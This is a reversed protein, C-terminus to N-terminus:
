INLANANIETCIKRALDIERLSNPSIEKHKANNFITSDIKTALDVSTVRFKTPLDQFTFKESAFNWSLVWRLCSIKQLIPINISRRQRAKPSLAQM